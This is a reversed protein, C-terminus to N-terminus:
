RRIPENSKAALPNRSVVQLLVLENRKLGSECLVPVVRGALDTAHRDLLSKRILLYPTQPRAHDLWTFLSNADHAQRKAELDLLNPVPSDAALYSAALDYATNYRPHTGPIPTLDLDNLYFWLGEDIENFFMIQHTAPRVLQHVSQALNRHGRQPNEAPAIRGYAIVIGLTGATVIPALAMADAGRKWMWASLAVSGALFLSIAPTWVWVPWPFFARAVLPAASAAVFLLVWQTQLIARAVKGASARGRAARTLRLWAAGTLLAMAPMCPLYYSPKAIAWFCLIALNGIAWWWAFWSPSV